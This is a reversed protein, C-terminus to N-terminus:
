VSGRGVESFGDSGIRLADMISQAPGRVEAREMGEGKSVVFGLEMTMERSHGRLMWHDLASRVAEMVVRLNAEKLVVISGTVDETSVDRSRPLDDCSLGSRGIETKALGWFDEDMGSGPNLWVDLGMLVRVMQDRLGRKKLLTIPGYDLTEVRIETRPM